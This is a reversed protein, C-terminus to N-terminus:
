VAQARATTLLFISFSDSIPLAATHKGTKEAVLTAAKFQFIALPTDVAIRLPRGNDRFCEASLESLSVERGPTM